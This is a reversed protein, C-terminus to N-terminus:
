PRLVIATVFRFVNYKVSNAPTSALLTVFSLVPVRTAKSKRWFLDGEVANTSGCNPM